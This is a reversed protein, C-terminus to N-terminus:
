GAQDNRGTLQVDIAVGLSRIAEVLERVDARSVRIDNGDKDRGNRHVIDHRRPLARAVAPLAEAFEIRLTDRYMAQVKALNHWVVDLLYRKVQARLQSAVRLVDNLRVTQKALDPNSDLFKQMLADDNLVRNIFSDSLYTELATICNAYLLRLLATSLVADLDQEILGEIIALAQALTEFPETNATIVTYLSDDYDDETPVPAWEFCDQELEGVAEAIRAEPYRVGFESELVDAADYPGGWIWIYGGEATEYPTREAPDEYRERFWHIMEEIADHHGETEGDDEDHSIIMDGRVHM